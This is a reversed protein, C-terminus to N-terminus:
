KAVGQLGLGACGSELSHKMLYHYDSVYDVVDIRRGHSDFQKLIPKNKDANANNAFNLYKENGANKGFNMLINTAEIKHSNGNDNNNNINYDYTITADIVRKLSPDSDYVNFDKLFEAQNFVEHTQNFAITHNFNDKNIESSFTRNNKPSLKLINRNPIRLM